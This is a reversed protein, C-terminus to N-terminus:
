EQKLVIERKRLFPMMCGALFIWGDAGHPWASLIRQLRILLETYDDLTLEDLRTKDPRSLKKNEIKRAIFAM